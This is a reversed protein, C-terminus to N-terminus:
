AFINDLFTYKRWPAEGVLMSFLVLEHGFPHSCNKYCEDLIQALTKEKQAEPSIDVPYADYGVIQVNYGGAIKGQLAVFDPHTSVAREYINCYAQRSEFYTLKKETGDRMRWLSYDPVNKTGTPSKLEKYKDFKHRWPVKDEYMEVRRRCFSTYDESFCKNGQHLNELNKSPPLGPQGHHVPGVSKPSLSPLGLGDVRGGHKFNPFVNLYGTVREPSRMMRLKSLIIKGPIKQERNKAAAEEVTINHADISEKAIDDRRPNKALEVRGQKKSHVGCVYPTSGSGKFYAKNTCKKGTSRVHATCESEGHYTEMKRINYM